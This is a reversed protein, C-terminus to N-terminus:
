ITANRRYIKSIKVLYESIRSLDVDTKMRWAWNGGLTSPTNIRSFTGLDLLDQMTTMAIMATSAFAIRTMAYGIPEEFPRHTYVDFFDRDNQSLDDEYWGRSTNNDHTGTYIVCDKTIHHPLYVSDSTEDFAFQLVAMGPMNVNQRLKIVEPTITGLDEAIFQAHPLANYIAKFLKEGPGKVWKGDIATEDTAPIEWYSEFGRFHDIRVMDYLEFQFALRNIWWSFEDQELNDWHYIPNGWLQGTQSFADPPCGAVVTPAGQEDLKFYSQNVWVDASDLAVYIPIDGIIKVNNQKAYQKIKHWQSFFFYQTVKYYLVDEKLLQRYDHLANIDRQKIADDPWKSWAVHNFHNKLAMFLAFDELWESEKKVFRNFDNLDNSALFCNVAKRLLAQKETFLSAYDIMESHRNLLSNSLDQALLLGGDVLCDLSIFYINGAYSSFSQYPSDGFSTMGLPLVQWITQHSAKLFDIFALAEKGLTGIGQTNPLSFIPMLIGSSRTDM